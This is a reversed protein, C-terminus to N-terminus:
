CDSACGGGKGATALVDMFRAFQDEIDPVAGLAQVKTRSMKLLTESLPRAAGAEFVASGRMLQDPFLEAGFASTLVSPIACEEAEIVASSSHTLHVDVVPLLAHLPLDSPEDLMVPSYAFWGRVEERRELMLPHLRVWFVLKGEAHEVLERLPVLQEQPALGYQLTVLVITRGAAMQRLNRARELADEVGPWASGKRWVSVWPNGGAITQHATGHCWRNIMVSESESWLWFYDPLLDLVPSGTPLHWSVYAPHLEGQVGHQIDVVPVGSERCALVFAMGELSYYSVIFAAKPRIAAIRRRYMDAVSRLRSADSIIKSLQFTGTGGGKNKMWEVLADRGPLRFTHKLLKARAVGSLTAFLIDGRLSEIPSALPQSTLELPSWFEPSYGHRRAAGILPDCFREIWFGGLRAFSLGDSLFVVKDGNGQLRQKNAFVGRGQELLEQGLLCLRAYGNRLDAEGRSEGSAVYHRAWESFFWRIRMLPWIQVGAVAWELVPFIAEAERVVAMLDSSRPQQAATGLGATM